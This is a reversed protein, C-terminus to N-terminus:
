PVAGAYASPWFTYVPLTGEGHASQYDDRQNENAPQDLTGQSGLWGPQMQQLARDGQSCSRVSRRDLDLGEILVLVDPEVRLQAKVRRAPGTFRMPQEVLPM